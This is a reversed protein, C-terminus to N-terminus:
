FYMMNFYAPSHLITTCLVELLRQRVELHTEGAGGISAMGGRQQDLHGARMGRLRSRGFYHINIFIPRM